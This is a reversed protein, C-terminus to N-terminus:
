TRSVAQKRQSRLLAWGIAMLGIGITGFVLHYWNFVRLLMVQILIWGLLISGQALIFYQFHRVKCIALGAALLNLIGNCTFLILGPIFFDRFPSYRLVEPTAGLGAGSPDVIYSFGAPLAGIAVFVMLVIAIIRLLKGSKM